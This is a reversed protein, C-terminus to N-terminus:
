KQSRESWLLCPGQGSGMIFWGLDANKGIGICDRPGDVVKKCEEPMEEYLSLWKDPDILDNETRCVIGM